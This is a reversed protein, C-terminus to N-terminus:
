SMCCCCIVGLCTYWGVEVGCEVCGSTGTRHTQKKPTHTEGDVGAGRGIDSLRRVFKTERTGDPGPYRSSKHDGATSPHDRNVQASTPPQLTSLPTGATQETQASGADSVPSCGFTPNGSQVEYPSQQHRNSKETDQAPAHAVATPAMSGTCSPSLSAAPQGYVMGIRKQYQENDKSTQPFRGHSLSWTSRDPSNGRHAGLASRPALSSRGGNVPRSMEYESMSSSM